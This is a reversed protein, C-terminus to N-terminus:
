LFYQLFIIPLACSKLDFYTLSVHLNSCVIDVVHHFFEGDVDELVIIYVNSSSLQLVALELIPHHLM